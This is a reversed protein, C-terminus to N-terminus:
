SHNKKVNGLKLAPKSTMVSYDVEHDLLLNFRIKTQRSPPKGEREDVVLHKEQIKFLRFYIGLIIISLVLAAIKKKKRLKRKKRQKKYYM